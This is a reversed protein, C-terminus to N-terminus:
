RCIAAHASSIFRENAISTSFHSWHPARRRSRLQDRGGRVDLAKQTVNALGGLRRRERGGPTRGKELASHQTALETLEIADRLPLRVQGKERVASTEIEDIAGIPTAIPIARL